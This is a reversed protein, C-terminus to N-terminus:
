LTSPSTALCGTLEHRESLFSFDHSCEQRLDGGDESPTATVLADTAMLTRVSNLRYHSEPLIGQSAQPPDAPQFNGSIRDDSVLIEHVPGNRSNGRDIDSQAVGGM